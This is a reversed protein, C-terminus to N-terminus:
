VLELVIRVKRQMAVHVLYQRFQDRHVRAGLPLLRASNVYILPTPPLFGTEMCLKGVQYFAASDACVAIRHMNRINGSYVYSFAKGDLQGFDTTVRMRQGSIKCFQAVEM